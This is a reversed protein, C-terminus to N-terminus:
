QFTQLVIKELKLTDNSVVYCELMTVLHGFARGKQQATFSDEKRERAVLM